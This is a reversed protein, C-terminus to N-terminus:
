SSVEKSRVSDGDGDDAGDVSTLNGSQNTIMDTLSSRFEKHLNGAYGYAYALQPLQPLQVTVLGTQMIEFLIGFHNEDGIGNCDDSVTTAFIKDTKNM